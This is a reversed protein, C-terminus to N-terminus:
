APLDKWKVEVVKQQKTGCEPCHRESESDRIFVHIHEECTPLIGMGKCGNSFKHHLKHECPHELPKCAACDSDIPNEDCNNWFPCQYIKM